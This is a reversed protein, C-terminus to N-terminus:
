KRTGRFKTRCEYSYIPSHPPDALDGETREHYIDIYKEMFKGRKSPIDAYCINEIVRAIDKSYSLNLYEYLSMDEQVITSTFDRKMIGHTMFSNYMNNRISRSEIPSRFSLKNFLHVITEHPRTSIDLISAPNLWITKPSQANTLPFLSYESNAIPTKYHRTASHERLLLNITEKYISQDFHHYHSLIMGSITSSRHAILAMRDEYIVLCHEYNYYALPLILYISQDFHVQPTPSLSQDFSDAIETSLPLLLHPLLEEVLQSYYMKKCM